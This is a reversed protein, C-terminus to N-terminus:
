TTQCYYATFCLFLMVSYMIGSVIPFLCFLFGVQLVDSPIVYFESHLFAYAAIWDGFFGVSYPRSDDEGRGTCNSVTTRPTRSTTTAPSSPKGTPTSCDSERRPDCHVRRPPKPTLDPPLTTDQPDKETDGAVDVTNSATLTLTSSTTVAPSITIVTSAQSSTSQTTPFSPGTFYPVTTGLLDEDSPRPFVRYPNFSRNLISQVMIEQHDHPTETDEIDDGGQVTYTEDDRSARSREAEYFDFTAKSVCHYTVKLQKFKLQNKFEDPISISDGSRDPCDKTRVIQSFRSDKVLTNDAKIKCEKMGHCHKAIAATVEIESCSNVSSVLLSTGQNRM